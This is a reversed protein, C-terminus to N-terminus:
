RLSKSVRCITAKSTGLRAAIESLSLGQQRLTTVQTPDVIARPRGLTKGQSRARKLGAHVREVIINRELEAMAAIITFIAQGLPSSTDINESYSVFAIGLRRLEDLALVLHKVSRAFRDFRWVLVVDIQRKRAAEMLRDLAPRSEKTGSVGHDVHEAQITWGRDAAYRRLDLLQNDTSQSDTSVRCYLAARQIKQITM